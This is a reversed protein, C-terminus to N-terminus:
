KKFYLVEFLRVQHNFQIKKVEILVFARKVHHHLSSQIINRLKWHTMIFKRKSHSWIKRRKLMLRLVNMDSFFFNYLSLLIQTPRFLVQLNAKAASIIHRRLRSHFATCSIVEQLQPLVTIFRFAATPFSISVWVYVWM